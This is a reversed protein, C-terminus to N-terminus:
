RKQPEIRIIATAEVSATSGFLGTLTNHEFRVWVGVYDPPGGRAPSLIRNRTAPCWFRDAATSICGASATLAKTNAYSNCLNTQPATKCATPVTDGPGSAKWVVVRKVKTPDLSILNSELAELALRDTFSKNGQVAEVRAAERAAHNVSLNVRLLFSGEILIFLLGFFVPAIIAGEILSAGRETRRHRARTRLPRPLSVVGM